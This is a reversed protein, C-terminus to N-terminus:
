MGADDWKRVILAAIRAMEREAANEAATYREAIQRLRPLRGRYGALREPPWQERAAREQLQKPALMPSPRMWDAELVYTAQLFLLDDV